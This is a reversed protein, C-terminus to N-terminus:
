RDLLAIKRVPRSSVGDIGTRLKAKASLGATAAHLLEM